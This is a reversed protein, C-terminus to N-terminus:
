GRPDTGFSAGYLPAHFLDFNPPEADLWNLCAEANTAVASLTSQNRARHGGRTGGHHDAALRPGTGSGDPPAAEGRSEARHCRAFHRSAPLFEGCILEPEPHVAFDRPGAALPWILEFDMPLRHDRVWQLSTKTRLSKARRTRLAPRPELKEESCNKVPFVTLKPLPPISTVGACNGITAPSLIRRTKSSPASIEQQRAQPLEAAACRKPSM